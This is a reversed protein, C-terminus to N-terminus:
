PAFLSIIGESILFTLYIMLLGIGERWSVKRKNIFLIAIYVSTVMFMASTAFSSVDVKIPNILIAIGLILSINVAVSGLIDGLGINKHGSLASKTEVSLEPLTTGISALTLGIIFSPINMLGALTVASKVFFRASLIIIPIATLFLTMDLFLKKIPVDKKLKGLSKEKQWLVRLYALFVLIIITGDIRSLYGDLGLLLPLTVILMIFFSTKSLLGEEVKLEKAVIAMIGLVLTVDLLNAGILNGLILEGFSNTVAHLGAISATIATVLEPTSTGLAVIIFGILYESAGLKRAFRAMAKIALEAGFILSAASAFLIILNLLYPNMKIM